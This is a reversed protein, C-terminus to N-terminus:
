NEGKEFESSILELKEMAEKVFQKLVKLHPSKKKFVDEVIFDYRGIEWEYIHQLEDKFKTLEHEKVTCEWERDKHDFLDEVFFTTQRAVHASINKIQKNLITSNEYLSYSDKVEDKKIKAVYNEAKDTLERVVAQKKRFAQFFKDFEQNIETLNNKEM